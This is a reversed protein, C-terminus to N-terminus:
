NTGFALTYIEVTGNSTEMTEPSPARWMYIRDHWAAIPQGYGGFLKLSEKGEENFVYSRVGEEFGVDYVMWSLPVSHRDITYSILLYRDQVLTMSRLYSMEWLVSRMDEPTGRGINHYREPLFIFGEPLWGFRRIVENTDANIEKVMYDNVGLYYLRHSATSYCLKGICGMRYSIFSQKETSLPSRYLVKWNVPDRHQLEIIKRANVGLFFLEGNRGTIVRCGSIFRTKDMYRGKRDYRLVTGGSTDLLYIQGEPDIAMNGASIYEGPGNGRRGFSRIYHGDHLSFEYAQKASVDTLLLTNEPTVGIWLVEGIGPTEENIPIDITGHLELGIEGAYEVPTQPIDASDLEGLRLAQYYSALYDRIFTASSEVADCSTMTWVILVIGIYVLVRMIM